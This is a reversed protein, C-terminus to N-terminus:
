APVEMREVRRPFLDVFHGAFREAVEELTPARGTLSEISAMRVGQLGCPVIGGFFDLDTTVNLAFGHTTLWRSLHVGISAIKAEGVWVGVYAQGEPVHAAIGYDALTRVLAEELDQVYRRVDRRDPSLNLIPYGVLQGPGHFTVQGGRNCEHIEIGRAALWEAGAQIDSNDANRGLTYVPPHELLLLHEPGSGEKLAGKLRAQLVEAQGYPIRGLFGWRLTRRSTDEM